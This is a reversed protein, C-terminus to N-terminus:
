MWWVQQEILTLNLNFFRKKHNSIHTKKRLHDFISRTTWHFIFHASAPHPWVATIQYRLSSLFHRCHNRQTHTHTHTHTHGQTKTSEKIVVSVMKICVSKIWHKLYIHFGNLHFIQKAKLIFIHGPGCSVSVDESGSCSWLSFYKLKINYKINVSVAVNQNEVILNCYLVIVAGAGVVVWQNEEPIVNYEGTRINSTFMLYIRYVAM